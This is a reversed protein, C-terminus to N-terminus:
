RGSDNNRKHKPYRSIKRVPAVRGGSFRDCGRQMSTPLRLAGVTGDPVSRVPTPIMKARRGQWRNTPSPNAPRTEVGLLRRDPTPGVPLFGEPYNPKRPRLGPRHRLRAPHHGRFKMFSAVRSVLPSSRNTAGSSREEFRTPDLEIVPRSPIDRHLRLSADTTAPETM